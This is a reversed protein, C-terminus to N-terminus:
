AKKHEGDKLDRERNNLAEKILRPVDFKDAYICDKCLDEGALTYRLKCDGNYRCRDKTTFSINVRIRKEISGEVGTPDTSM